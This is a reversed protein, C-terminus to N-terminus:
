YLRKVKLTDIFSQFYRAIVNHVTEDDNRMSAIKMTTLYNPQTIARVFSPAQVVIDDNDDM